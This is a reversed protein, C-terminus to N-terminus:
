LCCLSGLCRVFWLFRLLHGFFRELCLREIAARRGFAHRERFHAAVRPCRPCTGVQRERLRRALGLRLRQPKGRLDRQIRADRRRNPHPEQTPHARLNHAHALRCFFPRKSELSAPVCAVYEAAVASRAPTRPYQARDPRAHAAAVSSQLARGLKQPLMLTRVRRLVLRWIQMPDPRLTKRPHFLLPRSFLVHSFLLRLFCKGAFALTIRGARRTQLFHPLLTNRSNKEDLTVLSEVCTCLRVPTCCLVVSYM